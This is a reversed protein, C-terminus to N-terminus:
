CRLEAATLTALGNLALCDVFIANPLHRAMQRGGGGTLFIQPEITEGYQTMAAAAMRGSLERVAGLQGWFLGARMASETNRGPLSPEEEPEEDVNILPLRATYEHMALASLRLGPLISGGRFVRNSTMLDVTTATGSDISIVPRTGQPLLEFAAYVNLLRDIGVREPFDVDIGVPIQSGQSIMRPVVKLLPWDDLISDRAAPNSGAIVAAVPAPGPLTAAWRELECPLDDSENLVVAHISVPSVVAQDSVRFAGFKARTNGADVAIIMRQSSM